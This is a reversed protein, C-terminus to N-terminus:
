INVLATVTSYLLETVVLYRIILLAM